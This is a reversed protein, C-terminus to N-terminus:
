FPQQFYTNIEPIAHLYKANETIFNIEAAKKM